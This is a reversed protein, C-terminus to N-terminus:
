GKWEEGFVTVSHLGDNIKQQKLQEVALASAEIIKEDSWEKNFFSKKSLM